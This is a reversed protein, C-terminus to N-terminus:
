LRPRDIFQGLKISGLTLGDGLRARRRWAFNVSTLTEPAKAVVTAMRARRLPELSVRTLAQRGLAARGIRFPNPPAQLPVKVLYHATMPRHGIPRVGIASRGLVFRAPHAILWTIEADVYALFRRLGERTGKLGALELAEAVMQRKREEPWDDFWLDVSEHAALFPLFALPTQAPSMIEGLPVPLADTMAGAVAREFPRANAPLLALVGTL